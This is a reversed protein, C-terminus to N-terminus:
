KVDEKIDEETLCFKEMIYDIKAKTRIIGEQANRLADGDMYKTQEEWESLEKRLEKVDEIASQKIEKKFDEVFISERMILFKDSDKKSCNSCYTVEFLGESMKDSIETGCNSCKM